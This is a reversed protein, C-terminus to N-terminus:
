SFFLPASRERGRGLLVSQGVHRKLIQSLFRIEAWIFWDTTLWRACLIGKPGKLKGTNKLPPDLCAVEPWLFFVRGTDEGESFFSLVSVPPWKNIPETMQSVM